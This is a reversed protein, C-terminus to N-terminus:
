SVTCGCGCRQTATTATNARQAGSSFSNSVDPKAYGKKFLDLLITREDTQPSPGFALIKEILQNEPEDPDSEDSSLTLFALVREQATAPLTHYAGLVCAVWGHLKGCRTVLEERTLQMGVASKAFTEPFPASLDSKGGAELAARLERYAKFPLLESRKVVETIEEGLDLEAAINPKFALTVQFGMQGKKGADPIEGILVRASLFGNVLAPPCAAQAQRELEVDIPVFSGDEAAVFSAQPIATACKKREHQEGPSNREERAQRAMSSSSPAITPTTTTTTATSNTNILHGTRLSNLIIARKANLSGEASRDRLSDLEFLHAINEQGMETLLPFLALVQSVWCNLQANRETLQEEGMGLGVGSGVNSSGPFQAGRAELLKRDADSKDLQTKLTRFVEFRGVEVDLPALALASNEFSIRAEYVHHGNKKPGRTVVVSVSVSDVVARSGPASTAPKAPPPPLATSVPIIRASVPAGIVTVRGGRLCSLAAAKKPDADDRGDVALLNLFLHVIKQCQTSFSHHRSLLDNMWFNLKNKRDDLEDTSLSYLGLAMSTYRPPFEAALGLGQATGAEKELANKLDCYSAFPKNTLIFPQPAGPGEFSLLTDYGQHGAVKLGRQVEVRLSWHTTNTAATINSSSSLPKADSAVGTITNESSYSQFSSKTLGKNKLLRLIAAHQRSPDHAELSLFKNVLVQAPEDFISYKETIERFWTNLGGARLILESNTLPVGMASKSFTPPFDSEIHVVCRQGVNVKVLQAHLNRFAGFVHSKEFKEFSKNKFSITIDYGQHLTSKKSSEDIIDDGRVVMVTIIDEVM